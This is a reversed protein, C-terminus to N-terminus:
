NRRGRSAAHSAVCCCRYRQRMTPNKQHTKQMPHAQQENRQEHHADFRHIVKNIYNGSHQVVRQQEVARLTGKEGPDIWLPIRRRRKTCLQRLVRSRPRSLCIFGSRAEAPRHDAPEPGIGAVCQYRCRERRNDPRRPSPNMITLLPPECLSPNKILSNGNIKPTIVSNIYRITPAVNGNGQRPLLHGAFVGRLVHHPTREEDIQRHM